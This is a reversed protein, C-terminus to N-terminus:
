RRPGPRCRHATKIKQKYDDNQYFTATIKSNPNAKNFRDIAAQRYPQGPPGSLSWYSAAGGGSGSSSSPGSSGCAALTAAGAAGAALGLFRRRSLASQNM